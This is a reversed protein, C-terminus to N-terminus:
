RCDQPCNEKTEPCPCGVAMCVVAQCVGDGCLDRCVAESPMIEEVFIRGDPTKCQRPYSEMVPYGAAACEEFSGVRRIGITSSFLVGLIVVGLLALLVFIILTVAITKKERM